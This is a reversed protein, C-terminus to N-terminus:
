RNHTRRDDGPKLRLYKRTMSADVEFSIDIREDITEVELSELLARLSEDSHVQLDGMAAIGRVLDALKGAAQADLTEARVRVKVKSGFRASLSFSALPPVHSLGWKAAGIRSPLNGDERAVVWVTEAATLERLARALEGEESAPPAFGLGVDLMARVQEASGFLATSSDPFALVQEGRSSGLPFEFDPVRYLATKRYETHGVVGRAEINEIVQKPDFAGYCALGWNPGVNEKSMTTFYVLAWVDQLPDMGTLERFKEIDAWSESEVLSSEVGRLVPSASLASWDIYVVLNASAPVWPGPDPLRGSEVWRPSVLACLLLIWIRATDKMSRPVPSHAGEELESAPHDAHRLLDRVGSFCASVPRHSELVRRLSRQPSPGARRAFATKSSRLHSLGPHHAHWARTLVLCSPAM